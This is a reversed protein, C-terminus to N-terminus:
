KEGEDDALGLATLIEAQNFLEDQACRLETLEVAKVAVAKLKTQIASKIDLAARPSEDRRLYECIAEICRDAEIESM